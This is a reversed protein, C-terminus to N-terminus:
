SNQSNKELWKDLEEDGESSLFHNFADILLDTSDAASSMDAMSSVINQFPTINTDIWKELDNLEDKNLDKTLNHMMQTKMIKDILDSM